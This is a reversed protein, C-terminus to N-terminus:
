FEGPCRSDPECLSCLRASTLFHIEDTKAKKQNISALKMMKQLAQREIRTTKENEKMNYNETLRKATKENPGVYKGTCVISYGRGLTVSIALGRGIRNVIKGFGTCHGPTGTFSVDYEEKIEEHGLCKNLNSGWTYLENESTIAANHHSGCYIKKLLKNKHCFYQVLMPVKSTTNDSQGLQGNLGTGWTYLWGNGKTMPIMKAICASHWTGCSIDVIEKGSLSEIETPEWRDNFDGHGLRGGDGSGWSFIRYGGVALSHESGCAIIRIKEDFPFDIKHPLSFNINNNNGIYGLGLRGNATHGFSYVENDCSLVCNHMEGAKCCKVKIKETFYPVLDPITLNSREITGLCGNRGEGWVYIDGYQSVACAHNSGICVEVVNEDELNQVKQPSHFKARQSRCETGMPGVGAGGWCYVEKTKSVAFVVDNRSVVNIIGLGRTEPIVTFIHRSNLDGLGLQGKHNSGICYVAGQEELEAIQRHKLEAETEQQLKDKRERNLSDGLRELLTARNGQVNEKRAILHRKLHAKTLKTLDKKGLLDTDGWQIDNTSQGLGFKTITVNVAQSFSLNNSM